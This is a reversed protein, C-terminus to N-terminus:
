EPKVGNNNLIALLHVADSPNKKDTSIFAPTDEATALKYAELILRRYTETQSEKKSKDSEGPWRKNVDVWGGSKKQISQYFSSFDAATKGTKEMFTDRLTGYESKVQAIEKETVKRADLLKSNNGTKGPQIWSWLPSEFLGDYRFALSAASQGAQKSATIAAERLDALPTDKSSKFAEETELFAAIVETPLTTVKYKSMVSTVSEPYTETKTIAFDSDNISSNALQYAISATETKTFNVKKM